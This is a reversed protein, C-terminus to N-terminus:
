KNQMNRLNMKIRTPIYFQQIKRLPKFTMGIIPPEMDNVKWAKRDEMNARYRVKLSGNSNGGERMKVIVQPLYASTLKFKYLFRLMLEYDNAIKMFTNFQGYQEYAYRKVFFTPHPPMWGNEFKRRNYEGGQFYRSIKNTDVADVYVLDAYVSDVNKEVFVNVVKEITDASTYFDDSNLIGIVDGTALKVGKNFADFIGSDKESVIVSIQDKYKNVIDMTGDSSLGDIIIYEIDKYTQNVVSQITDEITKASNWSVTIISVKM